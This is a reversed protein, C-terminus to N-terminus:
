KKNVIPESSVWYWNGSSDKKFVHQYNSKKREYTPVIFEVLNDSEMYTSTGIENKKTSDGYITVLYNEKRSDLEGYIYLYKDNVYLTDKKLEFSVYERYHHSLFNSGGGQNHYYKGDKYTAGAELYEYFDGNSIDRGYLKKASEQLLSQDFVYWGNNLLSDFDCGIEETECMKTGDANIYTSIQGDSFKIKSFAFARLYAKNANDFTVKNTTYLNEQMVYHGVFPLKDEYIKKADSDTFEDKNTEVKEEVKTTEKPTEEKEKNNKAIVMGVIISILLIGICGVVYVQIPIVLKEKEEENVNNIENNYQNDM